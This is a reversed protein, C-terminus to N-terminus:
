KLSYSTLLKGKGSRTGFITTSTSTSEETRVFYGLKKAYWKQMIITENGPVGNTTIQLNITTTIQEASISESGVTINSSGNYVVNGSLKYNVGSVTSDLQPITVTIHSVVPLPLWIGPIASIPKVYELIDDDVEYHIFSSDKASQFFYVGSRGGATHNTDLLTSTLTEDSGSVKTLSSDERWANFTFTSGVKARSGTIGTIIDNITSKCGAIGFFLVTLLVLNLIGKKSNKM